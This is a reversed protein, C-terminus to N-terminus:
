ASRNGSTFTILSRVLSDLARGSNRDIDRGPAAAELNTRALTELGHMGANEQLTKALSQYTLALEIREAELESRSVTQRLSSTDPHHRPIFKRVARLPETVHTRWETVTADENGSYKQGSITLWCASLIQTVRWGKLQLDLCAAEVEPLRWFALAFQWLPNDETPLGEPLPAQANQM